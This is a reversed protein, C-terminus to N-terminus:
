QGTYNVQIQRRDLQKEDRYDNQLRTVTYTITGTVSALGAQAYRAYLSQLNFKGFKENFEELAERDNKDAAKDKTKADNDEMELTQWNLFDLYATTPSLAQPEMGTIEYSFQYSTRVETEEQCASFLMTCVAVSLLTFLHRKM